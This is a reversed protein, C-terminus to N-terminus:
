YKKGYLAQKIANAADQEGLEVMWHMETANFDIGSGPISVSPAIVYRFTTEPFADRANTLDRQASQFSRLSSARLLFDLTRMQDVPKTPAPPQTQSHGCEVVDVIVDAPDFGLEVCKKVATLVDVNVLVGGDIFTNDDFSQPIFVGPIASSALTANIVHEVSDHDCLAHLKGDVVSTAGMCVVRNTALPLPGVVKTFLNRLPTSDFLSQHNFFGDIVGGPWNVYIASQNLDRIVQQMLSAAAVEDGKNHVALAATITSGASIGTVVDYAVEEPPLNDVLGQFVGVEYAAKDGGGSLALARCKQSQQAFTALSLGSLCVFLVLLSSLFRM